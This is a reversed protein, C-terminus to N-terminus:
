RRFAASRPGQLRLPADWGRFPGRPACLDPVSFNGLFADLTDNHRFATYELWGDYDAPLRVSDSGKNHLTRRSRAAVAAGAPPSSRVAPQHACLPIDVVTGDPHFAAMAGTIPNHSVHAGSPVTHHCDEHVFGARASLCSHRAWLESAPVERPVCGCSDPDVSGRRGCGCHRHRALADRGEDSNAPTRVAMRAMGDEARAAATRRPSAVAALAPEGRVWSWRFHSRLTEAVAEM